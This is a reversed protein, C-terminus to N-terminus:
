RLVFKRVNQVFQWFRHFCSGQVVREGGCHFLGLYNVFGEPHAQQLCRLSFEELAGAPRAIMRIMLKIAYIQNVMHIVIRIADGM